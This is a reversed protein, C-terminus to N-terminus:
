RINVFCSRKMEGGEGATRLYIGEETHVSGLPSIWPIWYYRECAEFRCVTNLSGEGTACSQSIRPRAKNLLGDKRDGLWLCCRCWVTLVAAGTTREHPKAASTLHPRVSKAFFSFSINEADSKQSRPFRIGRLELTLAPNPLFYFSEKFNSM